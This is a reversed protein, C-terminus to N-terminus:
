CGQTSKINDIAQILKYVDCKTSANNLKNRNGLEICNEIAQPIKNKLHLYLNKKKLYQQEKCYDDINKCLDKILMACNDYAKTTFRFHLLYWLEFCPLSEALYFKKQKSLKLAKEYRDPNSSITDLDFICWTYDFDKKSNELVAREVINLPDKRPAIKPEISLNTVRLDAKLQNFYIQETEGEVVLLLTTRPARFGSRRAM